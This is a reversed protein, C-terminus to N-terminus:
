GRELIALLLYVDITCWIASAWLQLARWSERKRTSVIGLIVILPFALALVFFTRLGIGWQEWYLLAWPVSGLAVFLAALLAPWFSLWLLLRLPNPTQDM